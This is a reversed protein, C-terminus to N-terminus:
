GRSSPTVLDWRGSIYAMYSLPFGIVGISPYWAGQTSYGNAKLWNIAGDPDFGRDLLDFIRLEDATPSLYAVGNTSVTQVNWNDGLVAHGYTGPPLAGPWLAIGLQAALDSQPTNAPTFSQPTSPQSSVADAQDIATARWFLTQSPPAQGLPPTYSTQGPTETVTGTVLIPSFSSSTSIEFRYVIAAAVARTANTVTFTPWGATSAGNVPSVPTPPNISISSGVTFQNAGSFASTVTGNQIRVHWYYSQNAALSSDLQASTTGNSGEAVGSKVQVKNAFASDTAVEFTYSPTGSSVKANQAVLMIPQSAFAVQTGNAPQVPVPGTVTTPALPGSSGCAIAMASFAVVLYAGLTRNTLPM